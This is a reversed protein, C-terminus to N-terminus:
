YDYIVWGMNKQMIVEFVFLRKMDNCILWYIGWYWCVQQGIHASSVSLVVTLKCRRCLHMM